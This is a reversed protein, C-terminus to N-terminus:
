CTNGNQILPSRSTIAIFPYDLSERGPLLPLSPTTWVREVQAYYCQLPLGLERYRCFQFRVMLHLKTDYGPCMWFTKSILCFQMQHQTKMTPYVKQIFFYISLKIQNHTNYIIPTNGQSLYSLYGKFHKWNQHKLIM